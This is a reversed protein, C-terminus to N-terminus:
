SFLLLNLIIKCGHSDEIAEGVIAVSREEAWGCYISVANVCVVVWVVLRVLLYMEVSEISSSLVHDRVPSITYLMQRQVPAHM